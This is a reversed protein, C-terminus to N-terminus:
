ANDIADNSPRDSPAAARQLTPARTTHALDPSRLSPANSSLIRPLRDPYYHSWRARLINAVFRLSFGEREHSEVRRSRYCRLMSGRRIKRCAPRSGDMRVPASERDPQLSVARQSQHVRDTMEWSSGPVPALLTLGFSRARSYRTSKERSCVCKCRSM